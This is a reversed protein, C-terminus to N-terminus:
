WDLPVPKTRRWRSGRGKSDHRDGVELLSLGVIAITPHCRPAPLDVLLPLLVLRTLDRARYREESLDRCQVSM